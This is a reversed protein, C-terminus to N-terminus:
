NYSTGKVCINYRSDKMPWAKNKDEENKIVFMKGNVKNCLNLAQFAGLRESFIVPGLRQAQCLTEENVEIKEMNTVEWEATDWNAVNGKLDM